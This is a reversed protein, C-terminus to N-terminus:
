SKEARSRYNYSESFCKRSHYAISVKLRRCLVDPLESKIQNVVIDMVLPDGSLTVSSPSNHCAVVVGDQLYPKVDEPSLGVAAMAGSGDQRKAALGRYYAIIIASQATIAGAAYAAAIEGSSHGVVSSPRIGWNHM